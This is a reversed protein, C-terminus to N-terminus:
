IEGDQNQVDLVAATGIVGRDAPQGGGEPYFCTENLVVYPGRENASSEAVQVTIEKLYPDEYYLKRTM